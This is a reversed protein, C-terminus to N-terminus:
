SIDGLWDLRAVRRDRKDRKGTRAPLLPNASEAAGLSIEDSSALGAIEGVADARAELARQAAPDLAAVRQEVDDAGDVRREFGRFDGLQDDIAGDM